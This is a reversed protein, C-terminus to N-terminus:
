EPLNKTAKFYHYAGSKAMSELGFHEIIKQQAVKDPEGIPVVSSSGLPSILGDPTKVESLVGDYFMFETQRDKTSWTTFLERSEIPYPLTFGADEYIKRCQEVMKLYKTDIVKIISM